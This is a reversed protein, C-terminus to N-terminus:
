SMCKCLLLPVQLYRIARAICIASRIVLAQMCSSSRTNKSPLGASTSPTGHNIDAFKRAAEEKEEVTGEAKDQLDSVNRVCIRLMSYQRPFDIKDDKRM